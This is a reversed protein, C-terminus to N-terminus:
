SRDIAQLMERLDDIAGELRDEDAESLTGDVAELFRIADKLLRETSIGRGNTFLVSPIVEARM